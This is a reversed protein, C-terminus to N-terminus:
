KGDPVVLEPPTPPTMTEDVDARKPAPDDKSPAQAPPVTPDPIASPKLSGHAADSPSTGTSPTAEGLKALVPQIRMDKSPMLQRQWPQYGQREIRVTIIKRPLPLKAPTTSLFTGDVLIDANAPDSDIDVVVSGGPMPAGATDPRDKLVKILSGVLTSCADWAAVSEPKAVDGMMKVMPDGSAHGKAKKYFVPPGAPDSPDVARMEVTVTVSGKSPHPGIPNETSIDLVRTLVVLFSGAAAPVPGASWDQADSDPLNERAQGDDDSLRDIRDALDFAYVLRSEPYIPALPGTAVPAFAIIRKGANDASAATSASGDTGEAPPVVPRGDQDVQGNWKAEDRRVCGLVAFVSVTLLCCLIASKM